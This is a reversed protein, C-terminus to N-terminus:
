KFCDKILEFGPWNKINKKNENAWTKALAIRINKVNSLSIRIQKYYRSEM